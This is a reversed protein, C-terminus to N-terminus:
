ATAELITAIGQGGGVPRDVRLGRGVFTPDFRAGLHATVETWGPKRWANGRFYFGLHSGNLEGLMMSVVQSLERATLAAAAM